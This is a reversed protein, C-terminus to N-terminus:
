LSDSTEFSILKWLREIGNSVLAGSPTDFLSPYKELLEELESSRVKVNLRSLYSWIHDITAGFPNVLLFATILAAFFCM